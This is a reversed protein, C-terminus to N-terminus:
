YQEQLIMSNSVNISKAKFIMGLTPPYRISIGWIEVECIDLVNKNNEGEGSKNHYIYMQKGQIGGPFMIINQVGPHKENEEHYVPTLSALGEINIDEKNIFIYYGYHRTDAPFILIFLFM